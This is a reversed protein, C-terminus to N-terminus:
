VWPGQKRHLDSLPIRQLDLRLLFLAYQGPGYFTNPSAVRIKVEPHNHPEHESLEGKVWYFLFTHNMATASLLVPKM